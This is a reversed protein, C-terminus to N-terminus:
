IWQYNMGGAGSPRSPTIIFQPDNNLSFFRDGDVVVNCSAVGAIPSLFDQGGLKMM